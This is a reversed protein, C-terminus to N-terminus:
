FHLKDTKVETIASSLKTSVWTKGTETPKTLNMISFSDLATVVTAGSCWFENRSTHAGVWQHVLKSVEWELPWPEWQGNDSSYVKIQPAAPDRGSQVFRNWISEVM